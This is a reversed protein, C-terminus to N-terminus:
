RKEDEEETKDNAEEGEDEYFRCECGNISCTQINDEQEPKGRGGHKYNSDDEGPDDNISDNICVAHSIGVGGGRRGIAEKPHNIRM